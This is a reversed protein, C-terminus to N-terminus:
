DEGWYDDLFSKNLDQPEMATLRKMGDPAKSNSWLQKQRQKINGGIWCSASRKSDDNHMDEGSSDESDSTTTLVEREKKRSNNSEVKVDTDDIISNLKVLVPDKETQQCSSSSPEAFNDDQPDVDNNSAHSHAYEISIADDNATSSIGGHLHAYYDPMASIDLKCKAEKYVAEPGRITFHEGKKPTSPAAAPLHLDYVLDQFEDDEKEDEEGNNDDENDDVTSHNSCSTTQATTTEVVSYITAGDMSQEMIMSSSEANDNNDSAQAEMATFSQSFEQDYVLGDQFDDDEEGDNENTDHQVDHTHADHEACEDFCLRRPAMYSSDDDRDGGTTTATTTAPGRRADFDTTDEHSSKLGIHTSSSMLLSLDHNLDENAQTTFTTNSSSSSSSSAAVANPPPLSRKLRKWKKMLKKVFSQRKTLKRQKKQSNPRKMMAEYSVYCLLFTTFIFLIGSFYLFSTFRDVEQQMLKQYTEEVASLTSSKCRSQHHNHHHNWRFLTDIQQYPEVIRFITPVPVFTADDHNSIKSSAGNNSFIFNSSPDNEALSNSRQCSGLAVLFAEDHHAGSTEPM